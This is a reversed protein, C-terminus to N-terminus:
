DTPTAPDGDAAAALRPVLEDLLYPLSLVSSFSAAGGLVPDDLFVERGEASAVLSQRLPNSRIREMTEADAAIWILVDHDLLGVQEASFEAYFRDGARATIDAPIEMGLDTGSVTAEAAAIDVAPTPSTDTQGGGCAAVLALLPAVALTQGRRRM